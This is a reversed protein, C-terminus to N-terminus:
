EDLIYKKCTKFIHGTSKCIYCTILEDTLFIRFQSGNLNIVLSGPLKNTDKHKIYLQRRFNMIHEYGEINIGAKLYNIQFTPIIDVDKLANLIEQNSISLCVNYIIIRKAPNILRRLQIEQDNITIIKTKEMLTDLTSKNSLFICFHNNSIRSVFTINKPLVTQGVALIYEIQPVRDNSNFVLAQDRKPSNYNATISAFNRNPCNTTHTTQTPNTYTIVNQGDKHSSLATNMIRATIETDLENATAIGIAHPSITSFFPTASSSAPSPYHQNNGVTQSLM